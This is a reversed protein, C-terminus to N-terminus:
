SRRRGDREDQEDRLPQQQEQLLRKLDPRRRRSKSEQKGRVIQSESGASSEQKAEMENPSKPVLNQGSCVCFCM